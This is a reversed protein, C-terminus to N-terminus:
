WTAAGRCDCPKTDDERRATERGVRENWIFEAVVVCHDSFHPKPPDTPLQSGGQYFPLRSNEAHPLLRNVDRPFHTVTVFDFDSKSAMIFDYSLFSGDTTLISKGADAVVWEEPTFFQKYGFIEKAETNFDGGCVYSFQKDLSSRDVPKPRLVGETQKLAEVREEANTTFPVHYSCAILKRKTAKHELEVSLQEKSRGDISMKGTHTAVQNFTTKHFAVACEARYPYCPYSVLHYGSEKFLKQLEKNSEAKFEQLLILDCPSSSSTGHVLHVFCERMIEVRYKLDLTDCKAYTTYYDHHLINVTAIKLKQTNTKQTTRPRRPQLTAARRGGCTPKNPCRVLSTERISRAGASTTQSQPGTHSVEDVPSPNKARGSPCLPNGCGFLSTTPSGTRSIKEVPADLNDVASKVEPNMKRHHVMTVQLPLKLENVSEVAIKLSETIWAVKDEGIGGRVLTLFVKDQNVIPGAAKARLFNIAGLLLTAKYVGILVERAIPEIYPSPYDKVPVASCLAHHVFRERRTLNLPTTIGATSHIGIRVNDTIPNEYLGSMRSILNAEKMCDVTAEDGSLYIRLATAGMTALACPSGQHSDYHDYYPKFSDIPKRFISAVQVVAGELQCSTKHMEFIDGVANYFRMRSQDVSLTKENLRKAIKHLEEVSKQAFWGFNILQDSQHAPRLLKCQKEFIHDLQVVDAAVRKRLTEKTREFAEDSGSEEEFGFTSRFMPVEAAM